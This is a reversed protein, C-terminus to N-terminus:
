TKGELKKREQGLVQLIEQQQPDPLSMVAELSGESVGLHRALSSCVLQKGLRITWYEKECEFIDEESWDLFESFKEKIVKLTYGAEREKQEISETLRELRFQLRPLKRRRQRKNWCPWFGKADEVEGFIENQELQLEQISDRLGKLQLVHQWYVFAPCGQQNMTKFYEVQLPTHGFRFENLPKFSSLDTGM